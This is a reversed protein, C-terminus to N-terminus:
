VKEGLRQFAEFLPKTLEVIDPDASGAFFDPRGPMAEDKVCRKTFLWKGDVKKLNDTYSGIFLVKFGNLTSATEVTTANGTASQFDGAIDYLPATTLHRSGIQSHVRAYERLNARGRICLDGFGILGDETFCNAWGEPDHRDIALTYEALLDFIKVKEIWPQIDDM